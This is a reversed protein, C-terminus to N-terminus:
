GKANKERLFVYLSSAVILGIGFGAIASPVEGWFLYGWLLALPLMVFEFPAIASAEAVRYAQSLFYGVGTVLLGIFAMLMGDAFNPWKWPRLLIDLKSNYAGMFSGDGVFFWFIFSVIIFTVGIYFSMVSAKDSTGLRRSLIQTTAYALASIIPLISYVDFTDGGPQVIILVGAFGVLIGVWRRWGVTEGLFPVSLATIFLPSAFFLGTVVVLPMVSIAMYFAMNATVILLGRALHVLPRSTKLLALGGEYRVIFLTLFVAIVSRAMVIEHLAYAGSLSKISADMLSGIGMGAVICSIGLVTDNRRM